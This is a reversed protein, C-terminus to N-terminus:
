ACTYLRIMASASCSKMCATDQQTPCCRCPGAHSGFGALGRCPNLAGVKLADYVLKLADEESMDDSQRERFLPRALQTAMGTTVHSDTYHTGIMGVMGLFPGTSEEIGGVILSNWLPDFKNRRNYMVRTLYSYIDKPGMQIGDDDRFDNTTLEDLLTMIYQFDSVEGSAGVVVRDNVRHIRQTNKYRKTSGYAALTDCAVLVGDCYKVALVSNGTVYPNKTHQHTGDDALAAPDVAFGQAGTLPLHTSHQPPRELVASTPVLLEPGTVGPGLAKSHTSPRPLM